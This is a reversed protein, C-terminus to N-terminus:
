KLEKQISKPIDLYKNSTRQPAPELVGVKGMLWRVRDSPQAGVSLWYKVRNVNATIEKIGDDAPLPNYTGLYEIARGDRRVRSDMVAIRYFPLNRRGFRQLRMRVVM